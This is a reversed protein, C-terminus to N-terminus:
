AQIEDFYESLAMEYDGAGDGTIINMPTM